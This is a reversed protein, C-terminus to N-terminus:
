RTRSVILPMPELERAGAERADVARRDDVEVAQALHQDARV